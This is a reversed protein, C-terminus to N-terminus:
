DRWAGDGNALKVAVQRDNGVFPNGPDLRAVQDFDEIAKRYQGIEVRAAAREHHTPHGPDLEIAQDFYDIAAEYQELRALAKGRHLHADPHGTRPQNGPRLGPHGEGTRGRQPLDGGTSCPTPM